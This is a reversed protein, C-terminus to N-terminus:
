IGTLSAGGAVALALITSLTVVLQLFRSKMLQEKPAVLAQQRVRPEREDEERGGHLRVFVSRVHHDTPHM